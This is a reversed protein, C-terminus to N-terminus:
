HQQDAPIREVSLLVIGLGHLHRMLGMLGAQDTVIGALTSVTRGREDVACVVDVPGFWDVLTEDGCGQIRVVYAAREDLRPM